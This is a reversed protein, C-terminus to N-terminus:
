FALAKSILRSLLHMLLNVLIRNKKLKRRKSSIQTPTRKNQRLLNPRNQKRKQVQRRIKQFMQTFKFGQPFSNTKLFAKKMRRNKQFEAM